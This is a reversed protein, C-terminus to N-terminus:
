WFRSVDVTNNILRWETFAKYNGTTNKFYAPKFADSYGQECFYIYYKRGHYLTVPDVTVTRKEGSLGYLTLNPEITSTNTESVVVGSEEIIRFYCSTQLNTEDTFITVTNVIIDAAPVYEIAVDQTGALLTKDSAGKEWILATGFYLQRVSTTGFYMDAISHTGFRFKDVSLAM